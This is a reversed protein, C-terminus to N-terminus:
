TRIRKRQTGGLTASTANRLLPIEFVGGFVRPPFDMDFAKQGFLQPPFFRKRDNKEETKKIAHKATERHSQTLLEFVGYIHKKFGSRFIEWFFEFFIPLHWASRTRPKKEKKRLHGKSGGGCPSYAMLWLRCAVFRLASACLAFGPCRTYYIVYLM